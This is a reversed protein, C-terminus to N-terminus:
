SAKRRGATRGKDRLKRRLFELIGIHKHSDHVMTTYLLAFVDRYHGQSTKKLREYEKIGKREAELFREVSVLLQDRKDGKDHVRRALGEARTWALEDKLKTIMRRTLEHHRQEDAVILELLFRILPDSSEKAIAQYDTLWQEEHTAHTQFENMLRQVSSFEPSEPVGWMADEAWYNAIAKIASSKPSRAM